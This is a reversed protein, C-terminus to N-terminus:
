VFLLRALNASTQCALERDHTETALDMAAKYAKVAEDSKQKYSYLNGLNNLAIEEINADKAARALKIADKLNAEAMDEHDTMHQHLSHEKLSPRALTYIAGLAAKIRARHKLDAPPTIDQARALTETALRTQGLAHYAAALHIETEIQGASNTAKEVRADAAKWHAVSDPFTGNKTLREALAFEEDATAAQLTGSLVFVLFLLAPVLAMTPTSSALRIIAPVTAEELCFHERQECAKQVAVILSSLEIYTASRANTRRSKATPM